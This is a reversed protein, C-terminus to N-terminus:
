KGQEKKAQENTTFEYGLGGHAINLANLAELFAQVDEASADGRDIHIRLEPIPEQQWASAAIAADQDDSGYHVECWEFYYIHENLRLWEKFRTRMAEGNEADDWGSKSGITPVFFSDYGNVPSRIIETAQLGIRLAEARAEAVSRWSTVIIANHTVHGM